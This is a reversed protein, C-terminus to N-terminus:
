IATMAWKGQVVTISGTCPLPGPGRMPGTWTIPSSLPLGKRPDSNWFIQMAKGGDENGESEADTITLGYEWTRGEFEPAEVVVLNKM